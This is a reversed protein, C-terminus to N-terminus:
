LVAGFCTCLEDIEAPTVGELGIRLSITQAEEWPWWLGYAIAGAVPDAAFVIQGARVGGTRAAVERIPASASAITRETLAHPFIPALLGRAEPALDTDFSSAVCQFRHDFSWGRKPWAARFRSLAEFLPRHASAM